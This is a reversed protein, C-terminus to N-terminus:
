EFSVMQLSGAMSKFYTIATNVTRVANRNRRKVGRTGLTMENM